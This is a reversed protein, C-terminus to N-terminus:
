YSKAGGGRKQRFKELVRVLSLDQGCDRERRRNGGYYAGAFATKGGKGIVAGLDDSAVLVEIMSEDDEKTSVAVSEPDSVINKVLFETLEVLSM